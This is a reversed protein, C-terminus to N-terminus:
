GYAYAHDFDCVLVYVCVCVGVQVCVCVAIRLSLQTIPPSSGDCCGTVMLALVMDAFSCSTFSCRPLNKISMVNNGKPLSRVFILCSTLEIFLPHTHSEIHTYYKNLESIKCPGSLFFSPLFSHSVHTHSLSVSISYM